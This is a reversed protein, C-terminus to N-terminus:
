GLRWGALDPAPVKDDGEPWTRPKITDLGSRRHGFLGYSAVFGIAGLAFLAVWWMVKGREEPTAFWLMLAAFLAVLALVGLYMGFVLQAGWVRGINVSLYKTVRVPPDTQVEIDLAREVAGSLLVEFYLDVLFLLVVLAIVAIFVGARAEIPFATAAPAAGAGASAPTPVGLFGLFTSAALLGTVFSFGVKRLDVLVTDFRAIAARAEAWDKFRLDDASRIPTPMYEAIWDLEGVARARIVTWVQTPARRLYTAAARGEDPPLGRLFAIAGAPTPPQGGLDQSAPLDTWIVADVGQRVAWEEIRNLLETKRTSDQVARLSTHKSPDAEGRHIFGIDNVSNAKERLRLNERAKELSDFSSLAWLTRVNHVWPHIAQDVLVLTLRRPAHQQGSVRLFEIPLTPGDRQWGATTLALERPDWM